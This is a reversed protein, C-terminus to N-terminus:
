PGGHLDAECKGRSRLRAPDAKRCDQGAVKLTLEVHKGDERLRLRLGEGHLALAPSDFLWVQLPRPAAATIDLARVVQAADTCLNIQVEATARSETACTMASAISLALAAAVRLAVDRAVPPRARWRTRNRACSDPFANPAPLQATM